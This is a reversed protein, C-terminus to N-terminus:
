ALRFRASPSLLHPTYIPLSHLAEPLRLRPAANSGLVGHLRCSSEPRDELASDALTCEWKTLARGDLQPQHRGNARQQLARPQVSSWGGLCVDPWFSLM